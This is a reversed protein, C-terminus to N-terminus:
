SYFTGYETARSRGCPMEVREDHVPDERCRGDDGEDSERGKDVRPRLALLGVALRDDRVVCGPSSTAYRLTPGGGGGCM